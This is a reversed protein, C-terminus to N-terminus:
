SGFQRAVTFPDSYSTSVTGVLGLKSTTAALASLIAIPEFRNLFHPISKENIYLGDAVFAFAIGAEEAKRANRVFFEFNVSADVPSSPHKWSNM